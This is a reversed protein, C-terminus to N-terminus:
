KIRKANIHLKGERSLTLTKVQFGDATLGEQIAQYVQDASTTANLFHQIAIGVTPKFRWSGKTSILLDQIHTADSLNVIIDGNEMILQGLNDHAIDQAKYKKFSM